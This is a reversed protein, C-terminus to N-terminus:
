EADEWSPWDLSGDPNKICTGHEKPKYYEGRYCQVRTETPAPIARAIAADAKDWAKRMAMGDTSNNASVLGQLAELMDKVVGAELAETPIGECANWAAALRTANDWDSCDCVVDYELQESAVYFGIGGICSEVILRGPTHKGQTM